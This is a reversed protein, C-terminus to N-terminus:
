DNKFAECLNQQTQKMTNIVENISGIANELEDVDRILYYGHGESWVAMGEQRVEQILDRVTSVSVPVKEALEKGTRTNERSTESLEHKLQAKALEHDSRDSETYDELSM